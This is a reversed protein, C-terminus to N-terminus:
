DREYNFAALIEEERKRMVVKDDPDIHDYGLLHLMGHCLVYFFERKDSHGYESSQEKVRDISIVIDGLMNIEGFNETENYAFSIVDTPMDKNRYERNIKQIEENTTVLISLYYENKDYEEKKEDKLIYNVFEKIKEEDFFDDIEPIDYSIDVDLMKERKEKKKNKKKKKIKIKIKKEKVKSKSKKMWKQTNLEKTICM